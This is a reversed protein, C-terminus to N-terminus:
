TMGLFDRLEQITWSEIEKDALDLFFDIYAHKNLRIEQKAEEILKERETSVNKV